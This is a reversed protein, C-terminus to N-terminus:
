FCLKGPNMVHRPDLENKLEKLKKTYTGTKQYIMDAWAGYPRDFFAGNRILVESLQLWLRKV